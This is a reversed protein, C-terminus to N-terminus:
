RKLLAWEVKKQRKIWHQQITSITSDQEMQMQGLSLVQTENADIDAFDIDVLFM